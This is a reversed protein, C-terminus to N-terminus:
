SKEQSSRSKIEVNAWNSWLTVEGPDWVVGYMQFTLETTGTEGLLGKVICLM